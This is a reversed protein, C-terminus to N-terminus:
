LFIFKHQKLGSFKHYNTVAAILFYHLINNTSVLLEIESLNWMDGDADNNNKQNKWGNLFTLIIRIKSATCFCTTPWIWGFILVSFGDM